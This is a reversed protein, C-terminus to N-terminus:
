TGAKKQIQAYVYAFISFVIVNSALYLLRVNTLVTPNEWDIRKGLQMAGLIIAINTVM